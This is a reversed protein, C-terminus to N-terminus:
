LAYICDKKVELSRQILMRLCFIANSTGKGEVFGFQEDAIEPKIKCRIREMIIRLFIKTVHSMLSITQHDECENAGPKEAISDIDILSIQQFTVLTM